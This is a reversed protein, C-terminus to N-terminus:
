EKVKVEAAQNDQILRELADRKSAFFPGLQASLARLSADDRGNLFFLENPNAAESHLLEIVKNSATM